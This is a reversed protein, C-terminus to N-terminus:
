IVSVDGEAAPERRGVEDLPDGPGVAFAERWGVAGVRIEPAHTATIM